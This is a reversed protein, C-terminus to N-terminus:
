QENLLVVRDDSNDEKLHVEVLDNFSTPINKGAYDAKIPLERHGRDILVALQIRAPRGFDILADMAARISRGTFLVDDVLIVTKDTISFPIDTAKVVPQEAKTNLDDRYLTIDLAGVEIHGSEIAEIQSALRKALLVGGKQIGVLCLNDTGKNKEIIEHAIRTLARELGKSNLIEKSM